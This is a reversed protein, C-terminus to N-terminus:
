PTTQNQRWQQTSTDSKAMELVYGVVCSVVVFGVFDAIADTDETYFRGSVIRSRGREGRILLILNLVLLM